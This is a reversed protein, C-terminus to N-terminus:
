FLIHAPDADDVKWANNEFVLMIRVSMDTWNPDDNANNGSNNGRLVGIYVDMRKGDSHAAAARLTDLDIVCSTVIGQSRDLTALQNVFQGMTGVRGKAATSLYSYALAYEQSQMELCFNQLTAKADVERGIPEFVVQFLALSMLSCLIIVVGVAISCGIIWPKRSNKSNKPPQQPLANMPRLHQLYSVPQPPYQPQSYEVFQQSPSQPSNSDGLDPSNDEHGNQGM